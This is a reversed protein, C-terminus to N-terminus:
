PTSHNSDDPAGIKTAHIILVRRMDGESGGEYITQTFSNPTFDSFVERYVINKGDRQFEDRVAFQSGEWRALQSMAVCGRPNASGCWLVRYGQAQTDWWIVGLGSFERGGRTM